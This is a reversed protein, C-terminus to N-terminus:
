ERFPNSSRKEPPLLGGVVVTIQESAYLRRAARRVDEIGIADIMDGHKRVYDVPLGDELFQALQAAIDENSAFSLPFSGRLYLKADSFEQPTPGELAFKRLTERVVMLARRMDERKAQVEGIM